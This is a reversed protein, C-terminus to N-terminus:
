PTLALYKCKRHKKGEIDKGIRIIAREENGSSQVISM